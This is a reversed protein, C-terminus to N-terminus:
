IKNRKNKLYYKRILEVEKDKNQRSVNHELLGKYKVTHRASYSKSPKITKELRIQGIRMGPYLKIASTGTNYIEFTIVGEFGPDIFGATMHIELGLRAFSSRGELNGCIDNPLKIYEMSHGLLFQGPTITLGKIFDMDIRRSLKDFNSSNNSYTFDIIGYQDPYFLQFSTGLRVDISTTGIQDRINILPIFQMKNSFILEKIESDVLVGRNINTESTDRKKLPVKNKWVKIPKPREKEEIFFDFWESIQISKLIAQDHREILNRISKNFYKEISAKNKYRSIKKFVKNHLVDFRSLWSVLFIEQVYTPIEEYEEKTNKIKINPIPLGEKIQSKLKSIIEPNIDVYRQVIDKLKINLEEDKGVQLTKNDVSFFHNTFYNKFASFLYVLISNDTEWNLADNNLENILDECLIFYDLKINNFLSAFRHSLITKILQLRFISPPHIKNDNLPANLFVLYQSFYFSPGILICAFLDCWCETLWNLLVKEENEDNDFHFNKKLFNLINDKEVIYAYFDQLINKHDFIKNDMLSHSMEHLLSPWRFTNSADIRPITIHSPKISSKLHVPDSFINNFKDITPHLTDNIYPNLPNRSIEEGLNENISLVIDDRKKSSSLMVIQKYIVRGFRTLEVPESPRPLISLWDKHLKNIADLIDKQIEFHIKINDFNTLTNNFGIVTMKLLSFLSEKYNNILNYQSSTEEDEIYFQIEIDELHSIFRTIREIIEYTLLSYTDNSISNGM